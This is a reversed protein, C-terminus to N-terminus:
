ANWISMYGSQLVVIEQTSTDTALVVYEYTRRGPMLNNIQTSPVSIEVQAFVNGSTSPVSVAGPLSATTAYTTNELNQSAVAWQAMTLNCAITYGILSAPWESNDYSTTTQTVLIPTGTLVRNENAYVSLDAQQSM